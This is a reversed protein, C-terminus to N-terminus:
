LKTVIDYFGNLDKVTFKQGFDRNNNYRDIYVSTCGFDNAVLVDKREDPKIGFYVAIDCLGKINPKRYRCSTSSVYLDFFPMLEPFYSKHLEDPMGTAVDTLTAIKIGRDRLKQLVPVTEPYTYAKLPFAEFFCYAIKEPLIDVGWKRVIEGFIREYSYDAERFKISPNYGRLIEMGDAINKETLQPLLKECVHLFGNEYYDVWVCPMGKYEMLTGGIDFVASKIM